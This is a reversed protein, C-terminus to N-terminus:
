RAGTYGYSGFRLTLGASLRLDNQTNAYGNPLQTRVYEAEILRVAFRKSFPLDLGGGAQLALSNATSLLGTSSPFAGQFAHARGGLGHGFIQIRSGVNQRYGLGATYTLRNFDVGNAYGSIRESSVSGAIGFGKWLSVASELGGGQLWFCHCSGPALQTHEPSYTLGLDFRPEAFRAQAWLGTSVTAAACVLMIKAYVSPRM